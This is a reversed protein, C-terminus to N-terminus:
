PVVRSGDGGSLREMVPKLVEGHSRSLIWHKDESGELFHSSLHHLLIKRHCRILGYDLEKGDRGIELVLNLFTCEAM